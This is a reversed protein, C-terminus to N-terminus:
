SHEDGIKATLPLRMYIRLVYRLVQTTAEASIIIINSTSM